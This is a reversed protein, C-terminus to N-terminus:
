DPQGQFLATQGSYRPPKCNGYYVYLIVNPCGSSVLIRFLSTATGTLSVTSSRDADFPQVRMSEELGTTSWPLISKPIKPKRNPTGPKRGKTKAPVSVITGVEGTQRQEEMVTLYKKKFSRVTSEPLDLRNKFHRIAASNGHELAYKAVEARFVDSYSTTYRRRKTSPTDDSLPPTENQPTENQPKGNELTVTGNESLSGTNSEQNTLLAAEIDIDICGPDNLIRHLSTSM